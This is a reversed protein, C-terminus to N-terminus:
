KGDLAGRSASTLYNNSPNWLLWGGYYKSTAATNLSDYVAQKEERIMASTYTAGLDFDQLWPRLKTDPVHGMAYQAQGTSSVTSNANGMAMLKALGHDMSYKIIEYPYDAPNKYGLFGNAYHSPYVMPCVYDFYEYAGQIIQGIGLDDNNVTALGFLDASIRNNPFTQRLFKFYDTIITARPTKEDWYPYSISGISGDSAFRIYEFNIEDFGRDFGDKAISAFYDWAPRAAPDMWALNHNDTWIGGTKKNKLAWEPHAKALIPDQFNTVRGIVYIGNDHLEKILTNPRTIRIENTAGSSIVEPINMKYSVYGSYDKIDIIVANLETSKILDILSKMRAPSGATWGTIYIAKIVSPPNELKSQFPLDSNSSKAINSSSATDLTSSSQKNGLVAINELAGGTNPLIVIKEDKSFLFAGAAFAGAAVFIAMPVSRFNM